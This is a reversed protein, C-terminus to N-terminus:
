NLKYVTGFRKQKNKNVLICCCCLGTNRRISNFQNGNINLCRGYYINWNQGDSKPFIGVTNFRKVKQDFDRKHGSSLISQQTPLPVRLYQALHLWNAYQQMNSLSDDVPWSCSVTYETNRYDQTFLCMWHLHEAIWGFLHSPKSSNVLKSTSLLENSCPLQSVSSWASHSTCSLPFPSHFQNQRSAWTTQRFAM